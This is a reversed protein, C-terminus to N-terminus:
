VEWKDENSGKKKNKMFYLLIKSFLKIFAVTYNYDIRINTPSRIFFLKFSSYFFTTLFHGQLRYSAKFLLGVLSAYASRLDDLKSVLRTM